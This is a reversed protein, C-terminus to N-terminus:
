PGSTGPASSIPAPSRHGLGGALTPGHCVGCQDDAIAQGRQAQTDTYVGDAITRGAQATVTWSVGVFVLAVLAVAPPWLSRM